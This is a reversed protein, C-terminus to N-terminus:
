DEAAYYSDQDGQDSTPILMIAALRYLDGVKEDIEPKLAKLEELEAKIGESSDETLKGKGKGKDLPHERTSLTDSLLKIRSMLSAGAMAYYRLAQAEESDYEHAIAIKYCCEALSRDSIPVIPQLTTMAKM